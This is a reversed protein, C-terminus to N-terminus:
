KFLFVTNGVQIQDYPHLRTEGFVRKNNVFTGNTSKEDRLYVHQDKLYLTAHLRSLATDWSVVLYNSQERGITIPKGDFPLPIVMGAGSFGAAVTLVHPFNSQPHRSEPAYNANSSPTVDAAADFGGLAKILQDMSQFRKNPDKQLTRLVIQELVAPISRNFFRPSPPPQNIHKKIVEVPDGSFPVRRTLMEFLIAGLSYIDCRHDIKLAKAQEPAMYYPTGLIMGTATFGATNLDKAIGFDMIKFKNFGDQKINDPKLDRHVVNMTHAYQLASALDIIIKKTIDINPTNQQMYQRLTVGPLFEMIFYPVGDKWKDQSYVRVIHPHNLKMCMSAEHMFRKMMDPQDKIKSNPVKIAIPEGGPLARGLYVDAFGGHGILKLIQFSTFQLNQQPVDVIQKSVRSDSLPIQLNAHSTVLFEAEGLRIRDQEKLVTKLTRIGNIYIGGRSSMDQISLRNMFLWLLAHRKEVGTDTITVACSSDSGLYIKQHPIRLRLGRQTGRIGVLFYDNLLRGFAM